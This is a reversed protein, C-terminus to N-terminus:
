NMNVHFVNMIDIQMGEKMIHSLGEQIVVFGGVIVLTIQPVPLWM